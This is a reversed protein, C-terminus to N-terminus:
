NIEFTPRQSRVNKYNRCFFKRNNAYQIFIIVYKPRNRARKKSKGRSINRPATKESRPHKHVGIRARIEIQNRGFILIQIFIEELFQLNKGEQGKYLLITIYQAYNICEPSIVGLAAV